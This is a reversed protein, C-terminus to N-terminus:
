EVKTATLLERGVLVHGIDVALGLALGFRFAEEVGLLGLFQEFGAFLDHVGVTGGLSEENGHFGGVLVRWGSEQAADEPTGVLM